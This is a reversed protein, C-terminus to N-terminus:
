REERAKEYHVPSVRAVVLLQEDRSGARERDRPIECVIQLRM